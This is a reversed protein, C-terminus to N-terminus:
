SDSKGDKWNPNKILWDKIKESLRAEGAKRAIGIASKIAKAPSRGHSVVCLGDVGLLWGGGYEAYDSKRAINKYIRRQALGGLWGFLHSLMEEKLMKKFSAAIGECSKLVINGTFGDTIIVDAKGKFIEQGEINGKFNLFYSNRLLTHAQRLLDNGKTEEEGINLLYLSPEEKNFLSSAYFKGLLGYDLLNEANVTPNAGADLFLSYGKPNPLLVAIAPRGINPLMGLHYTALAIFAATNGASVLVDAKKEKLLSLGINLSSEKEKFLSAGVKKAMEVRKPGDIVELPYPFRRPLLGEIRKKDGILFLSVGQERAGSLAGEIIVEEGEEGGLVDVAIRVM